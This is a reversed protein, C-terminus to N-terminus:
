EETRFSETIKRLEANHQDWRSKITWALIQHFYEGDDVTTHLFVINTGNQTCSLEDQLADHGAITVSTPETASSNTMKKLMAERTLQHHKKLTMGDFDTQAESLVMLYQGKGEDGVQISAKANLEPLDKWNEPVTVRTKGDAAAVEKGEPSSRDVSASERHERMEQRIKVFAPILIAPVILINLVLAVYGLILGAMAMGGGGLAGGSKRIASRGVHGCIIAPIATIFGGCLFSLIGLILSWLASPATPPATPIVPPPPPPAPTPAPTSAAPATAPAPASDPAPPLSPPTPPVTEDSM